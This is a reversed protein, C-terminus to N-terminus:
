RQMADRALDRLNAKVTIGLVQENANHPTKGHRMGTTSDM